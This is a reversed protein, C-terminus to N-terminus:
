ICIQKQIVGQLKSWFEQPQLENVETINYLSKFFKDITKIIRKENYQFNEITFIFKDLVIEEDIITPGFQIITTSGLETKIYLYNEKLSPQEVIKICCNGVDSVEYMGTSTIIENYEFITKM